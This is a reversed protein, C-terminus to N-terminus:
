SLAMAWLSELLFILVASLWHHGSQACSIALVDFISRSQQVIKLRIRNCALISKVSRSRLVSVPLLISQVLKQYYHGAEVEACFTAPAGNGRKSSICYDKINGKRWLLPADINVVRTVTGFSGSEAIPYQQFTRESPQRAACSRRQCRSIQQMSHMFMFGFLLSEVGLEHKPHSCLM